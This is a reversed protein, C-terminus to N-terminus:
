RHISGTEDSEGGRYAAVEPHRAQVIAELALLTTGAAGRVLNDGVITMRLARPRRMAVGGVAITMPCLEALDGPRPRHSGDLVAVPHRLGTPLSAVSDHVAFSRLADAVDNADTDRQLEVEVMLTHGVKVPVRASRIEFTCPEEFLARLEGELAREEGTLDPLVNDAMVLYPYGPLDAGSVAQLATIYTRELGFRRHLALLPLAALVTTCNPTALLRGCALAASEDFEPLTLRFGAASRGDEAHAVVTAGHAAYHRDWEISHGDPLVSLCYASTMSAGCLKHEVQGLTPTWSVGRPTAPASPLDFAEALSFWPHGSLLRTVTQGLLTRAGLVAVPIRRTSELPIM